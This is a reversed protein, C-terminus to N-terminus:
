VGVWDYVFFDLLYDFQEGFGFGEVFSDLLEFEVDLLVVGFEVVSGM